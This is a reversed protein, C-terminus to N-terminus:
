APRAAAGVQEPMAADAGRLTAVQQARAPTLLAGLREPSSALVAAATHLGAGILALYEGRALPLRLSLLDLGDAPLGTELQRLLRDMVDPDPASSPIAVQAIEAASRLHFRTSDAISRIDGAAVGSFPNHTFRQEIEATSVGRTWADLLCARKARGYYTHFDPAREQLARVLDDGFIAAAERPWKAEGQGRKFLPTYGRDMETLGQVLAMLTEPALVGVRQRLLEVLRLASGLSLSSRGCAQGLLTLRLLNEGDRELLSQAEMKGVLDIVQQAMREPWKPDRRAALYGGFTNALLSVVAEAPVAETQAFLRILWTGVDEGTFSSTVPDPHSLVYKRFLQHRELATDALLIARGTERFGLRGARGAMNRMDGVTYEQNAWPFDHEVIIVTSAPTNIGAAVTMTAALVRVPGDPERFAREIIAREERNLDSTHFATGGPLTRRLNESAASRDLLPLSDIVASAPPLGLEAALYKACGSAAGRQNRFILIQERAERDNILHQVLPVVVDQSSPKQRRQLVAHRPLLQRTEHRGDPTLVEYTGSRDIVGFELPVPRRDSVLPRLSLWHDFHNIAGITASLAILQPAIGRERASRLYTLILEVVSGRTPDSIFQAEDLVVLGIRPLVGRNGVALALFMEFTLVAIDYKGNVFLTRQDAYDGTCRVVRLGLREGYLSAFQDYKENVLARYPLIFVAKRGEAVARVAAVEGILTKGSSTPAIVLTSEGALVRCGNIAELQLENLGDPYQEEWAALVMPPLRYAALGAFAAPVVPLVAEPFAKRYQPGPRLAPMTLGGEILGLLMPTQTCGMQAADARVIDLVEDMAAALSVTEAGGGGAGARTLVKLLANTLLGHRLRPHEYAPEDFRSAAIMVRGAGGFAVTDVPVERSVPTNDLVRAPAGGSFCCDLICIASRAQTSRFLAALESMPITTAEYDDPTTDHAVFRHDRTGHGAFMVLVDDDPGAEVLADSLVRRMEAATAAEDALLLTDAAPVTDSILAWLATADRRAGTLDPVRDDQHRDVGVCRVVLSM